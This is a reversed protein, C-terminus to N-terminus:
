NQKGNKVLREITKDRIEIIEDKAAIQAKLVLIQADKLTEADKYASINTQLLKITETGRSRAFYAVIVGLLATIGLIALIIAPLDM